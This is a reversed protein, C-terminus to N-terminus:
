NKSRVLNMMYFMETAIQRCREDYVEAERDTSDAEKPDTYIISKRFEAGPVFPCNEDAESCTMIAAFNTKPNFDDDFKKSFCIMPKGNDRFSVEYRPNEGGPNDVKFGAREIAAIARPNFAKAETGGSYSELNQIGYYHAATATWIQALHSRRSNHTCIFNLRAKEGSEKKSCIYDAVERLQEKRESPISDFNSKLGTIYSKLEQNM